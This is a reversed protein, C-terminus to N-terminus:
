STEANDILALYLESEEDQLLRTVRNLAIKNLYAVWPKNRPLWLWSCMAMPTVTVVHVRRLIIEPAIGPLSDEWSSARYEEQGETYEYHIAVSYNSFDCPFRVLKYDYVCLKSGM